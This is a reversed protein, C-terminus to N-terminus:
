KKGKPKNQNHRHRGKGGPGAYINNGPINANGPEFRRRGPSTDLQGQDGSGLNGVPGGPNSTASDAKPKTATFCVCSIIYDIHDHLM